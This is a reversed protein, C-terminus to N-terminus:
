LWSEGLIIASAISTFLRFRSIAMVINLTKILFTVSMPSTGSSWAFASDRSSFIVLRYPPRTFQTGGPFDLMALSTLLSNCSSALGLVTEGRSTGRVSTGNPTARLIIGGRFGGIEESGSTQTVSDLDSSWTRVSRNSAATRFPSTISISM